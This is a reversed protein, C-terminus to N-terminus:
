EEGIYQVDELIEERIHPWKKVANRIARKFVWTQYSRIARTIRLTTLISGLMKDIRLMRNSYRIFLHGPWIISHIPNEFLSSYTYEFRICGWKEKWHIRMWARTKCYRAIYRGADNLGEWDMDTDGWSHM